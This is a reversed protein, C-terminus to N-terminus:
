VWLSGGLKGEGQAQVFRDGEMRALCPNGGAVLGM